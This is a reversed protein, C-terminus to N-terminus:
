CPVPVLIPLLLLAVSLLAPWKVAVSLSDRMRMIGLYVMEVLLHNEIGQYDIGREEATWYRVLLAKAKADRM